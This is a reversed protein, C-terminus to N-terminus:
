MLINQLLKQEEEPFFIKFDFNESSLEPVINYFIALNKIVEYKKEIEEFCKNPIKNTNRFKESIKSAQELFKQALFVEYYHGMYEISDLVQPNEQNENLYSNKIVNLICYTYQVMGALDYTKYDDFDKNSYLKYLRQLEDFTKKCTKKLSDRDCDDLMLTKHEEKSAEKAGKKSYRESLKSIKEEDFFKNTRLFPQISEKFLVAGEKTLRYNFQDVGFGLTVKERIILNKQILTIENDYFEPAFSGFQRKQFKWNIPLGDM